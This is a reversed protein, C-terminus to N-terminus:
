SNFNGAVQEVHDKNMPNVVDSSIKICKAGIESVAQKVKSDVHGNKGPMEAATAIHRAHNMVSHRELFRLDIADVVKGGAGQEVHEASAAEEHSGGPDADGTARSGDPEAPVVPPMKGLQQHKHLHLEQAPGYMVPNGSPAPMKSKAVECAYMRKPKPAARNRHYPCSARSPRTSSVAVDRGESAATSAIRPSSESGRSQKAATVVSLGFSVDPAQLAAAEDSASTSSIQLPDAEMEHSSTM